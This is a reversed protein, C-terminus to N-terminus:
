VMNILAGRYIFLEKNLNELEETRDNVKKELENNLKIIEDDAIKRDTIDRFNIVIAEVGPDSILNSFTSEVWKWQGGKNAFRYQITIILAPNFLLNQLAALVEPLDDPHTYQIPNGTVEEATSYGFMKCAAPSVFKFNGEVDILVIGDPAKEIL